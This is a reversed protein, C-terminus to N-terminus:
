SFQLDKLLPDAGAGLLWDENSSLHIYARRTPLQTQTPPRPPSDRGQRSLGRM